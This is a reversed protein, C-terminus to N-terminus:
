NGSTRLRALHGFFQRTFEIFLLLFGVPMVGIIVGRPAAVTKFERIGRLLNDVATEGSYWAMVLCAVIGIVSVFIDLILRNKPNQHLYVLDIAVHGGKRLLWAAGLFTLYLLMNDIIETPWSLDVGIGAYRMVVEYGTILMIAIVLAGSVAAFVGLIRDFVTGFQLSLKL